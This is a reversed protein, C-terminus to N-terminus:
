RDKETDQAGGTDDRPFCVRIFFTSLHRKTIGLTQRRCIHAQIATYNTTRAHQKWNEVLNSESGGDEDTVRWALRRGGAYAGFGTVGESGLYYREYM